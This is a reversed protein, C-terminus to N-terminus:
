LRGRLVWCREWLMGQKKNNRSKHRLLRRRHGCCYIIMLSIAVELPIVSIATLQQKSIKEIRETMQWVTVLKRSVKKIDEKFVTDYYRYESLIIQSMTASKFTCWLQTRQMTAMALREGSKHITKHPTAGCKKWVACNWEKSFGVEFAICFDVVGSIPDWVHCPRCDM